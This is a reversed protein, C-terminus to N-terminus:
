QLDESTVRVKSILTNPSVKEAPYRSNHSVDKVGQLEFSIKRNEEVYVYVNGYDNAMLDTITYFSELQKYSSGITIGSSTAFNPDSIYIDTIPCTSKFCDTKMTVLPKESGDKKLVFYIETMGAKNRVKMPEIKYGSPATLKEVTTGLSIFGAMNDRILFNDVVAPGTIDEVEDISLSDSGSETTNETNKPSDEKNEKKKNCAILSLATFLAVALHLTRM